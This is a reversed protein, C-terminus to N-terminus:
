ILTVSQDTEDATRDPIVQEANEPVERQIEPIGQLIEGPIKEEDSLDIFQEFYDFPLFRWNYYSQRRNAIRGCGCRMDNIYPREFLTVQKSGCACRYNEHVTYVTGKIIPHSCYSSFRDNVCVLRQGPRYNMIMPKQKLVFCINYRM